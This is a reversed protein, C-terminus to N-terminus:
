TKVLFRQWGYPPTAVPEELDEVKEEADLVEEEDEDATILEAALEMLEATELAMEKTTATPELLATTLLVEDVDDVANDLEELEGAAEDEDGELVRVVGLVDDAEAVVVAEKEVDVLVEIDDWPWGM